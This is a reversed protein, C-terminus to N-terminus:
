DKQEELTSFVFYEFLKMDSGRRLRLHSWLGVLKMCLAILVIFWPCVTVRAM